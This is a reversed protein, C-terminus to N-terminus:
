YEFYGTKVNNVRLTPIRPSHLVKPPKSAAGLTFMRKVATLERVITANEAGESQRVEIYHKFHDATIDAVRMGRFHNDLHKL